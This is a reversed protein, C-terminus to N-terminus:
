EIIYSYIYCNIGVGYNNRLLGELRFGENVLTNEVLALSRINTTEVECGLRVLIPEETKMFKEIVSKVIEKAIKRGRYSYKLGVTLNAKKHKYKYDYLYLVGIIEKGKLIVFYMHNLNDVEKKLLEELQKLLDIESKPRSWGLFKYFDTDFLEMYNDYFEDIDKIGLEISFKYGILNLYLPEIKIEKGVNWSNVVRTIVNARALNKDFIENFYTMFNKSKSNEM